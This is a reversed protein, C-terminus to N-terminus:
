RPPVTNYQQYAYGREAPKNSDHEPPTEGAPPKNQKFTELEVELNNSKTQEQELKERAERGQRVAQDMRSQTLSIWRQPEEKALTVWEEKTKHIVPPTEPTIPSQEGPPTEGDQNPIEPDRLIQINRFM